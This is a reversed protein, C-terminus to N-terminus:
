FGKRADCELLMNGGHAYAMGDRDEKRVQTRANVMCAAAAEGEERQSEGRSRKEAENLGNGVHWIQNPLGGSYGRVLM